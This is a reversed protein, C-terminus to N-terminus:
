THVRGARAPEQARTDAIVTEGAVSRQGVAVPTEVGVPLYVDVCSGFRIMGFREGAKVEQVQAAHCLVRLSCLKEPPCTRWGSTQNTGWEWRVRHRRCITWENNTNM